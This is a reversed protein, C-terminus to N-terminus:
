GTEEVAIQVRTGISLLQGTSSPHNTEATKEETEEAVQKIFLISIGCAAPNRIRLHTTIIITYPFQQLTRQLLLLGIFCVGSRLLAPDTVTKWKEVFKVIEASTDGTLEARNGYMEQFYAAVTIENTTLTFTKGTTMTRQASFYEEQNSDSLGYTYGKCCNINFDSDVSFFYPVSRFNATCWLDPASNPSGQRIRIDPVPHRKSWGTRPSYVTFSVDLDVESIWYLHLELPDSLVLAMPSGNDVGLFGTSAGVPNPGDWLGHSMKTYYKTRSPYDNIFLWLSNGFVVVALRVDFFDEDSELYLGCPFGPCRVTSSWSIGDFTQMFLGYRDVCSWFLYILNHFVTVTISNINESVYKRAVPVTIIKWVSGEYVTCALSQSEGVAFLYIRNQFVVASSSSNPLGEGLSFATCIQTFSSGDYTTLWRSRHQKLERTYFVFLFLKDDFVVSCFSYIEPVNPRVVSDAGTAWDQLFHSM